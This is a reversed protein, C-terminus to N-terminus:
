DTRSIRFGSFIIDATKRNFIRFEMNPHFETTFTYKIINSNQTKIEVPLANGGDYCVDVDALDLNEGSIAVEYKGKLLPRYLGYVFGGPKVAIKGGDRDECKDRPFDTPNIELYSPNINRKDFYKVLEGANRRILIFYGDTNVISYQNFSNLGSVITNNPEFAYITDKRVKTGDGAIEDVIRDIRQNIKQEDKRAFYGNNMTLHNEAAFLGLRQCRPDDGYSLYEIHKYQKAADKWFESTFRQTFVINQRFFDMKAKFNQSIDTLQIALCLALFTIAAGQTKSIHIVRIILYFILIYFVPWFFRGSARFISVIHEVPNLMDKYSFLVKDSWTVVPSLALILLVIAVSLVPINNKTIRFSKTNSLGGAIVVPIMLLIGLGLYQFGEYQMENATKLDKLFVSWGMPNFLANFNMSYTGLGGASFSHIMLGGLCWFVFAASLVSSIGTILIRKLSKYELFDGLLFGALMVMVMAALYSQVAVSLAAITSWIVANARLGKFYDRYCWFLVPLLIIWHGALSSHYFLRWIVPASYIIFVSGILIVPLKATFRRFILSSIGGQLSFCFLGWLGLYQFSKPLLFNYLKFFVAFLPISDTFIVSSGFPYGFNQYSGIPFRWADNRFFDFGIQHQFIDDWQTYIWDVYIPNLIKVGYLIMFCLAGLICGSLFVLWAQKKGVPLLAPNSASGNRTSYEMTKMKKDGKTQIIGFFNECM